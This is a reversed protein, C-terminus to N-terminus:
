IWATRPMCRLSASLGLTSANTLSWDADAHSRQDLDVGPEQVHGAGGVLGREALERRSRRSRHPHADDAGRASPL